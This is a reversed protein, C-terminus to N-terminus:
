RPKLSAAIEHLATQTFHRSIVLAATGHRQVHIVLDGLGGDLDAVARHFLCLLGGHLKLIPIQSKEADWDFNGENQCSSLGVWFYSMAILLTTGM